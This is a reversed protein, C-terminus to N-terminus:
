IAFAMQVYDDISSRRPLNANGRPDRRLPMAMFPKDGEQYQIMMARAAPNVLFVAISYNM